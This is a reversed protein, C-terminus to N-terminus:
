LSIVGEIKSAHEYTDIIQDSSSVMMRCTVSTYKGASSPKLQVENKPFLSIVEDIQASPVVFKFMYLAPFSHTEELKAKFAQTSKEM